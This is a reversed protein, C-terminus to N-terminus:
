GFKDVRRMLAKRELGLLRAAASKNNSCIFMAHRVVAAEVADLKAGVGDPLELIARAIRDLRTPLDVNPQVLGSQQAEKILDSVSRDLRRAIAGLTGLSPRVRGAEIGALASASLGTRKALRDVSLGADERLERIRQGVMASIPTTQTMMMAGM